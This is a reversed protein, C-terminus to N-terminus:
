CNSDSRRTKREEEEEERGTNRWSSVESIIQGKRPEEEM